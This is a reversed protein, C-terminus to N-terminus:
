LSSKIKQFLQEVIKKNQEIKNNRDTITKNKNGSYSVRVVVDKDKYIIKYNDKLHDESNEKNLYYAKYNDNEEEVVHQQGLYNTKSFQNFLKNAFDEDTLVAIDVYFTKGNEEYTCGFVRGYAVSNWYQGYTVSEGWEKPKINDITNLVNNKIENYRNSVYTSNKDLPNEDSILIHLEKTDADVKDSEQVKEIKMSGTINKLDETITKEIEVYNINNAENINNNVKCILSYYYNSDEFVALYM